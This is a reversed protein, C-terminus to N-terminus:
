SAGGRRGGGRAGLEVLDEEATSSAQASPRPTSDAWGLCAALRQLDFAMRAPSVFGADPARTRIPARRQAGIIGGRPETPRPAPTCAAAEGWRVALERASALAAAQREEAELRLARQRDAYQWHVARIADDIAFDRGRNVLRGRESRSAEM